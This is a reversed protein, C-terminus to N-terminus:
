KLVGSRSLWVMYVILLLAVILMIIYFIVGPSSPSPNRYDNIAVVVSCLWAIFTIPIAIKRRLLLFASGIFGGIISGGLMISLWVPAAYYYALVEEPHNTLLPEFRFLTALYGASAMGNWILLLGGIVWLHWPTNPATKHNDM